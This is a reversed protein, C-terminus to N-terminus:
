IIKKVSIRKEKKIDEKWCQVEGEGGDQGCALGCKQADCSRISLEKFHHPKQLHRNWGKVLGNLPTPIGVSLPIPTRFSSAVSPLTQKLITKTPESDSSLHRQPPQRCRRRPTDPFLIAQCAAQKIM